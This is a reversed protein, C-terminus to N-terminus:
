KRLRYFASGDTGIPVTVKNNGNELV